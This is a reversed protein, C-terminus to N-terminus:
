LWAFCFVSLDNYLDIDKNKLKFADKHLEVEHFWTEGQLLRFCSQCLKVLFFFPDWM